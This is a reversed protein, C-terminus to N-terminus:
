QDAAYSRYQSFFSNAFCRPQTIAMMPLKVATGSILGDSKQKGGNIFSTQLNSSRAL